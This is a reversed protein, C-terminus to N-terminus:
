ETNTQTAIAGGTDDGKLRPQLELAGNVVKAITGVTAGLEIRGLSETNLIVLIWPGTM